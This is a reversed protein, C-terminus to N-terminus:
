FIQETKCAGMPFNDNFQAMSVGITAASAAGTMASGALLVGTLAAIVFRHM